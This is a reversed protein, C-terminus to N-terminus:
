EKQYQSGENTSLRPYEQKSRMETFLACIDEMYQVTKLYHLNHLGSSIFDYGVHPLNHIMTPFHFTPLNLLTNCMM